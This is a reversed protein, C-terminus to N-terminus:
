TAYCTTGKSGGCTMRPILIRKELFLNKMWFENGELFTMTVYGFDKKKFM